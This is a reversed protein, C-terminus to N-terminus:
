LPLTKHGVDGVHLQLLELYTNPNHHNKTYTKIQTRSIPHQTNVCHEGRTPQATSANIITNPQIM